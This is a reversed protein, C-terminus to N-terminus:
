WELEVPERVLSGLYGVLCRAEIPRTNPFHSIGKRLASIEHM